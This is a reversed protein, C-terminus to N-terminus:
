NWSKITQILRNLKNDLASGKPAFDELTLKQESAFNAINASLEVKSISNDTGIRKKEFYGRSKEIDFYKKFGSGKNIIFYELYTEMTGDNVWFYLQNEFADGFNSELRREEHNSFQMSQYILRAKNKGSGSKMRQYESPKLDEYNSDNDLVILHNHNMRSLQIIKNELNDDVINWDFDLFGAYKWIATSLCQITYNCKPKSAFTNEIINIFLQLYIIDSPGECWIVGNSLMLDSPKYDLDKLISRNDISTVVTKVISGSPQNIVHLIQADETKSFFDITINSHTTIFFYCKNRESYGSIYKFLRRQLSPHLNNELEEFGFVMDEKKIRNIVPIVILNLLVILITKIGSGMKSLAILGNEADRFYIEWNGNGNDRPLIEVFEIDPRTIENLTSLLEKKILDPDNYVNESRVENIIRRILNTAGFGDPNLGTTSDPNQPKVDREAAIRFFRKGSFPTKIANAIRGEFNESNAIVPKGWYIIEKSRDGVFRYKLAGGVLTMGYSYHSDGPIGGGSTTKSFVPAIQAETIIDTILVEATKAGRGVNLFYQSPEMVFGILDLLSSKGSNNRGIIVNIPLIREFGQENDGFCKYNKIKIEQELTM